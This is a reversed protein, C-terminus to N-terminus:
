KEFPNLLKLNHINKFDSINRTVLQLHHILATAAILSDGLPINNNQRIEVAKEIIPNTIPLSPIISFCSEFYHKDLKTLKHYGLIEVKSIVSLYANPQIILEKLLRNNPDASYILINSDLLIM